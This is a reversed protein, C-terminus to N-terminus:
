PRSVVSKLLKYLYEIVVGILFGGAFSYLVVSFTMDYGNYRAVLYTALTTVFSFISGILLGSPRAVTKAGVESVREVIPQHILKSMLKDPKGLREQAKSLINKFADERYERSYWYTNATNKDEDSESPASEASAAEQQAAKLLKEVDIKAHEAGAKEAKNKAEKLREQEQASHEQSKEVEAGNEHSGVHKENM